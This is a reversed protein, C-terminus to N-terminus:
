AGAAPPEKPLDFVLLTSTAIAYVTGDAGTLRAEAVAARRGSQLARGEATLLGAALTVARLYNVKIELTTYARGLPLTSHVACGTASDLLTAIIGGHVTGIPNYQYEAPLLTFCVRGPEIETLTTGILATIPPAPLRGDRMARLFDIGAMGRAAAATEAPDAWTVLRERQNTVAM